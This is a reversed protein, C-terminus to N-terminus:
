RLIANKIKDVTDPHRMVHGSEIIHFKANQAGQLEKRLYSSWKYPIIKDRDGFVFHAEINENEVLLKVIKNEEPWFKKHGAWGYAVRQRIESNDTHFRGFHYKHGSILGTKYLGYIIRRNTKPFRDILGWCAKGLRTHVVFKYLLGKKLGDPALVIIRKFKQPYYQLLTLAIRSGMSYGLLELEIEQRPNDNFTQAVFKDIANILTHPSLAHDISLPPQPRSKGHHLLNISLMATSSSYFPMFNKMEESNRDFGHFAVVLNTPTVTESPVLWSQFKWNKYDWIVTSGRNMNSLDVITIFHPFVSHILYSYNPFHHQLKAGTLQM